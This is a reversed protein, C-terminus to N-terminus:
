SLQFEQHQEPILIKRFGKNELRTQFAAQTKYEGHVLFVSKVKETDQCSIFQLLDDADAHASLGTFAGVEAEVELTENFLEVEKTGDLLQGGLSNPGCYGAM